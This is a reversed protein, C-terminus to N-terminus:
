DEDDWVFEEIPPVNAMIGVTEMKEIITFLARIICADDTDYVINEVFEMIRTSEGLEMLRVCDHEHACYAAFLYVVEEVHPFCLLEFSGLLVDWKEVTAFGRLYLENGIIYSRLLGLACKCRSPKKAFNICDKWLMEIPINTVVGYRDLLIRSIQYLPAKVHAAKGICMEIFVTMDYHMFEEIQFTESQIVINMAWCLIEIHEFFSKESFFHAMEYLYGHNTDGAEFASYMMMFLHHRAKTREKPCTLMALGSIPIHCNIESLMDNGCKVLSVFIELVASISNRDYQHHENFTDACSKIIGRELFKSAIERNLCLLAVLRRAACHVEPDNNFLCLMLYELDDNSIEDVEGAIKGHQIDDGIKKLQRRLLTEDGSEYCDVLRDLEGLVDLVPMQREGNTWNDIAEQWKFIGGELTTVDLM